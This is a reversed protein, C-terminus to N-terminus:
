QLYASLFSEVNLYEVEDITEPEFLVQREVGNVKLPIYTGKSHIDAILGVALKKDKGDKFCWSEPIKWFSHIHGNSTNELILCNWNNQESM